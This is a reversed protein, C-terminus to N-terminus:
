FAQISYLHSIKLVNQMMDKNLILLLGSITSACEHIFDPIYLYKTSDATIEKGWIQTKFACDQVAVASQCKRAM